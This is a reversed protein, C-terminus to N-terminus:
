YTPTGKMSSYEVPWTKGYRARVKKVLKFFWEQARPNVYVTEVLTDLNVTIPIVPDDGVPAFEYADPKAPDRLAWDDFFIARIESEYAYPKRKYVYPSYFNTMIPILETAFDIYKVIGIHVKRPDTICESLRQYTSRIAVGQSDSGQYIKWMADSEYPSMHWCNLHTHDRIAKNFPNQFSADAMDEPMGAAKFVSRRYDINAQAISGEFIDEMIGTRAFHLAQSELMSTFKALDMYRWISVDPNTPPECVDHPEHM